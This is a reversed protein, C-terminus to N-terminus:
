ADQPQGFYTEIRLGTRALEAVLDEGIAPLAGRGEALEERVISGGPGVGHAWQKDAIEARVVELTEPNVIWTDILASGDVVTCPLGPAASVLVGEEPAVPNRTYVVGGAM